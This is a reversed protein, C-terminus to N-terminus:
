RVKRGMMTQSSDGVEVMGGEGVQADRAWGDDM